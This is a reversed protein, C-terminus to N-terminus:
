KFTQEIYHVLLFATKDTSSQVLHYGNFCNCKFTAICKRPLTREAPFLPGGQAGSHLENHHQKNKGSNKRWHFLNTVLIGKM